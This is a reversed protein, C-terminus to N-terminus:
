GLTLSDCAYLRHIITALTHERCNISEVLSFLSDSRSRDELNACAALTCVGTATYGCIFSPASYCIATQMLQIEQTTSQM